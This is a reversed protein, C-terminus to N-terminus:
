AEPEKKSDSDEEESSDEEEVPTAPTGANATKGQEFKRKPIVEFFAKEWDRHEAWKSMIEYCQNVTLVKRTAMAIYQGIPLAAHKIGHKKAVGLCLNKYQNHDVIGGIVYTKGEELADLTNESDATLYIVDEQKIPTESTTNSSKSESTSAAADATDNEQVDVRAESPGAEASWLQEIPKELFTLGKWRLYDGKRGEIMRQKLQGDLPTLITNISHVANRNVNYVHALQTSMSKIDKESMKDDFGLDIVINANFPEAKKAKKHKKLGIEYPDAGEEEVLRRKEAKREKKAAKDRARREPKLAAMKEQRARKRQQSKSLAPTSSDGSAAATATSSSAQGNVSQDNKAAPVSETTLVPSASSSAAPKDGNQVQKDVTNTNRSM